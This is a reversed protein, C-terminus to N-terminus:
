TTSFLRDTSLRNTNTIMMVVNATGALVLLALHERDPDDDRESSRATKMASPAARSAVNENMNRTNPSASSAM